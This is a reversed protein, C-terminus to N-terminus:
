IDDDESDVSNKLLRTKRIEAQETIQPTEAQNKGPSSVQSDPSSYSPIEGSDILLQELEEFSKGLNRQALNEEFNEEQRQQLRKKRMMARYWVLNVKTQTEWKREGRQDELYKYEMEGMIVGWEEKLKEKRKIDSTAMDFLTDRDAVLQKYIRVAKMDTGDKNKRNEGARQHGEKYETYLEQVRRFITEYSVSYVTDNHYKTEVERAVDRAAQKVSIKKKGELLCRMRGIISKKAPLKTPPQFVECSPFLEDKTTSDLISDGFLRRSKKQPPASNSSASAMKQFFLIYIQM